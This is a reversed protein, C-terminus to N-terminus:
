QRDWADEWSVAALEDVDCDTVDLKPGDGFRIKADAPIILLRRGKRIVAQPEGTALVTDLIRYVRARLDTATITESM